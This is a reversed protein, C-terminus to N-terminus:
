GPAAKPGDLSQGASDKPRRAARRSRAPSEGSKSPVESFRSVARATEPAASDGGADRTPRSRGASSGHSRARSEQRTLPSVPTAWRAAARPTGVTVSKPEESGRSVAGRAFVARIRKRFTAHEGQKRAAHGM